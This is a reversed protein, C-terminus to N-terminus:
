NIFLNPFLFHKLLLFIDTHTMDWLKWISVLHDIKTLQPTINLYHLNINDNTLYCRLDKYM